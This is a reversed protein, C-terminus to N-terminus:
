DIIICEAREKEIIERVAENHEFRSSLLVVVRGRAGRVTFSHRAERLLFDIDNADENSKIELAVLINKSRFIAEALTRIATYAGFVAFLAVIIELIVEYQM